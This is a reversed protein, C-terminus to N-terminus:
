AWHVPVGEVANPLVLSEVYVNVQSLAGLNTIRLHVHTNHKPDYLALVERFKCVIEGEKSLFIAQGSIGGNPGSLNPISLVKTWSEKVGYKEMRWVDKCSGGHYCSSCLHGGLVQLTWEASAVRHAPKEVEGFTESLTVEIRRWSDTKLSYVEVRIKKGMADSVKVLSIAVIKYDDNSEDYGFGYCLQKRPIKLCVLGNCSGVIYPMSGRDFRMPHDINTPTTEATATIASSLAAHQSSILAFWSKSVCRFRLVSKVPLRTLIDELVEDPVFNITPIEQVPQKEQLQNSNPASASSEEMEM